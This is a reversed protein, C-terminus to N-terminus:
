RGDPVSLLREIEVKLDPLDRAVTGWILGLDIRWYEHVIINRQARPLRSPLSPIQQYTEETLAGAAEGIVTLCHFVADQSRQDAEFAARGELTYKEIKEIQESIHQLRRRDASTV